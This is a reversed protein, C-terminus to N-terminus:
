SDTEQKFWDWSYCYLSYQLQTNTNKVSPVPTLGPEWKDSSGVLMVTECEKRGWYTWHSSLVGMFMQQWGRLNFVKSGSSGPLLETYSQYQTSAVLTITPSLSQRGIHSRHPFVPSLPSLSQHGFPSGCVKASCVDISSGLTATLFWLSGPGWWLLRSCHFTFLVGPTLTWSTLLSKSRKLLWSSGQDGVRLSQLYLEAVWQKHSSVIRMNSSSLRLCSIFM